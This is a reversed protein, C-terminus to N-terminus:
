HAAPNDIDAYQEDKKTWRVEVGQYPLFVQNLTFHVETDSIVKNDGGAHHLARAVVDVDNLTFGGELLITLDLKNTLTAMSWILVDHPRMVTKGDVVVAYTAGVEIDQMNYQLRLASKDLIINGDSELQGLDASPYMHAVGQKDVKGYAFRTYECERHGAPRIMDDLWFICNFDASSETQNKITYSTSMHVDVLGKWPSGKPVKHPSLRIILRFEPRVFPANLVKDELVKRFEPQLNQVLKYTLAASLQDIQNSATSLRSDLLAILAGASEMKKSLPEVAERSVKDISQKVEHSVSGLFKREYREELAVRVLMGVVLVGGLEEMVHVVNEGMTPFRVKLSEEAYKALLLLVVGAIGIAISLWEERIWKMTRKALM